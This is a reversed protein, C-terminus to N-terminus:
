GLRSKICGKLFAILIRIFYKDAEAGMQPCANLGINKNPANNLASAMAIQPIPIAAINCPLEIAPKGCYPVTAPFKQCPCSISNPKAAAMTAPKKNVATCFQLPCLAM